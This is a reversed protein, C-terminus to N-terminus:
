RKSGLDIQATAVPAPEAFSVHLDDGAHVLVQRVRSGRTTEARLVYFYTEGAELKPTVFSRVAAKSKMLQDDVYLKADEPLDVVVKAPADNARTESGPKPPAVQEAPASRAPGAGPPVAYPVAQSGPMV